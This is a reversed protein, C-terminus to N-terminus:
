ERRNHPCFGPMAYRIAAEAVGFPLVLYSETWGPKDVTRDEYWDPYRQGDELAMRGEWPLNPAGYGSWCAGIEGVPRHWPGLLNRITGFLRITLTNRGPKWGKLNVSYPAWCLADCYNGNVWVEAVAANLGKLTFIVKEAHEPLDIQTEMTMVGCYFPYGHSVLEEGCVSDEKTIVFDRSIRICNGAFPELASRVAFDGLLIVPELEVGGLNEFLSTVAMKPKKLPRFDSQITLRHIGAELHELPITEFGFTRYTGQVKKDIKTGDVEVCLQKPKELVLSLGDMEQALEFFTELTVQGEYEEEQLISQIAVIPYDKESLAEGERAFHYMELVLANPDERKFHWETHLPMYVMPAKSQKAQKIAESERESGNPLKAGSEEAKAASKRFRLLLSSGEPMDVMVCTQGESVVTDYAEVTGDLERFRQCEYSGNVKLWGGATRRCNTNMLFFLLDEGDQRMLIQVTTDANRKEFRYRLPVDAFYAELKRSSDAHDMNRWTEACCIGQDTMTPGDGVVLIRGGKEKFKMLLSLTSERIWEMYPVVVTSYTMQGIQFGQATVSGREAITDEDGLEFNIQMATLNRILENFRKDLRKLLPHDSKGDMDKGHYLSFGTEVPHLVVVDKVTEGARLFAAERALADTLLRYKPWYPQYDSIHPPYARKGRGRLSYFIGHVSRHNIGQSALRDFMYKQDRFGMNETSVGYMEALIANKGTQHAASSCQLPTNYYTFHTAGYHYYKEPKIEGYDWEMQATLYDIGPLDFYQYMPMTFCTASIQGEISDELMLHGSFMLHNRCCWDRVSKFYANKMLHLVTRWYRLRFLPAGEGDVFLLHVKDWGFPEKWLEEYAAPLRDTWPMSVNRYSPEDVWVSSITKGFENRFDKWFDEYSQRVYFACADPNLMDLIRESAVVCYDVGEHSDLVKGNGQGQPFCCLNGISYEVPLELVAEPMYGAQMFLKMDIERAKAVIAKMKSMWDKGPYDSRLGIYTRVIVSGVGQEKMSCLQRCMEQEDLEDNLMWFDTGRCWEEPERFNYELM